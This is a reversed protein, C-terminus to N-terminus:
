YILLLGFFTDFLTYQTLFYLLRYLLYEESDSFVSLIKKVIFEDGENSYLIHTQYWRYLRKIDFYRMQM